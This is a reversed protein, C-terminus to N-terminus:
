MMMMDKLKQRKPKIRLTGGGFMSINNFTSGALPQFVSGSGIYVPGLYLITGLYGQMQMNFSFPFAIGWDAKKMLRPTVTLTSIYHNAYSGASVQRLNILAHGNVFFRPTIKFDADM